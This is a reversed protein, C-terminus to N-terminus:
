RKRLTQSLFRKFSDFFTKFSKVRPAPFLIDLVGKQHRAIPIVKIMEEPDETYPTSTEPKSTTKVYSSNLLVKPPPTIRSIKLIKPHFEAYQTSVSNIPLEEDTTSIPNDESQLSLSNTYIDQFKITSPSYGNFINTYSDDNASEATFKIWILIYIYFKAAIAM